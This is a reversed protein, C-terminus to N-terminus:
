KNFFSIENKIPYNDQPKSLKLGVTLTKGKIKITDGAVIISAPSGVEEGVWTSGVLTDKPVGIAKLFNYFLTNSVENDMFNMTVVSKRKLDPSTHKLMLQAYYNGASSKRYTLEKVVQMEYKGQPVPTADPEISDALEQTITVGGGIREKM